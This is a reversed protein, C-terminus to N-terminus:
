RKERGNAQLSPGAAQTEASDQAMAEASGLGMALAIALMLRNCM